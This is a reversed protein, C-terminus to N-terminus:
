SHFVVEKSRVREGGSQLTDLYPQESLYFHAMKEKSQFSYNYYRIDVVFYTDLCQFVVFYTDLRQFVVFYTDLCQFVVFYTDWRQFVVFYTDLCQFGVFYTDWRQFVVFYTDLCHIVM